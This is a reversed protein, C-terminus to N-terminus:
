SASNEVFFLLISILVLLIGLYIIRHGKFIVRLIDEFSRCVSLEKTMLPIELFMLTYIENLSMHIFQKDKAKSTKDYNVINNVTELVSTEKAILDKYTEDLNSKELVDIISTYDSYDLM